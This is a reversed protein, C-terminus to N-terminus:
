DLFEFEDKAREKFIEYVAQLVAEDEVGIYSVDDETEGPEMRLIVVEDAFEEDTPLVLLYEEGQYEILDLFDFSVEQGDEDTLVIKEDLEGREEKDM